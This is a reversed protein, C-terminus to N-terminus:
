ALETEIPQRDVPAASGAACHEPLAPTGRGCISFAWFSNTLTERGDFGWLALFLPASVFDSSSTPRWHVSGAKPARHPRLSIGPILTQASGM